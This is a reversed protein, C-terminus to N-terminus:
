TGNEGKPMDGLIMLFGDFIMTFVLLDVSGGIWRGGPGIWRGGPGIWRGGPGFYPILKRARPM